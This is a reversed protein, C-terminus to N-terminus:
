SRESQVTFRVQSRVPPNFASGDARRLEVRVLHSGAAVDQFTFTDSYGKVPPLEDLRLLVYAANGTRRPTLEVGAVQMRVVVNGGSVAGGDAPSVIHLAPEPAQALALAVLAAVAGLATIGGLLMAKRESLYRM